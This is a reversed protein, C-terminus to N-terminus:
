LELLGPPLDVVITDADLDIDDIMEDVFPILAPREGPRRVVLTEHAPGHDIRAVTGIEVGDGDVVRLGILETDHYEEEGPGPLDTLSLDVMLDVGRLAEAAERGRVGELTLMPRGKHWRVAEARLVGDRTRYETGPAFRQEPEDTRVEVVVEGRVGHPRVIRGVVVQEM